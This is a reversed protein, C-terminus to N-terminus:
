ILALNWCHSSWIIRKVGLRPCAFLFPTM